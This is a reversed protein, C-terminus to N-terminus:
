RERKKKKSFNLKKRGKDKRKSWPITVSPLRGGEV